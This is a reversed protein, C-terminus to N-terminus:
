KKYKNEIWTGNAIALEKAKAKQAATKGRNKWMREYYEYREEKIEKFREKMTMEIWWYEERTNPGHKYIWDRHMDKTIKAGRKTRDGHSDAQLIYNVTGLMHGLSTIERSGSNRGKRTLKLQAKRKGINALNATVKKSDGKGMLIFHYHDGKAKNCNCTCRLGPVIRLLSSSEIIPVWEEYLDVQWFCHRATWDDDIGNWFRVIDNM